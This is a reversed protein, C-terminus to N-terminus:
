FSVYVDSNFQDLLANRYFNNIFLYYRMFYDLNCYTLFLTVILVLHMDTICDGPAITRHDRYVVLTRPTLIIRTRSFVGRTFLLQSHSLIEKGKHYKIYNTM